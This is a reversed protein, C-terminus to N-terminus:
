ATSSVGKMVPPDGPYQTEKWLIGGGHLSSEGSLAFHYADLARSLHDPNQTVAYADLLGWAMWGNDDYFRNTASPNAASEYGAINNAETRYIDLQMIFNNIRPIYMEPNLEAASSLAMLQMSNPWAYSWASSGNEEYYGNYGRIRFDQEITALVKTGKDFYE